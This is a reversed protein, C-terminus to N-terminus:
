FFSDFYPMYKKGGVAYALPTKLGSYSQHSRTCSCCWTGSFTGSPESAWHTEPPNRHLHNILNRLTATCITFLTGSPEPGSLHYPEPDSPQYPEPPEPESLLCPEPPNRPLFTILNWPKGAYIASSTGSREPASPSHPESPRPASLLCHEPPNRLLFIILNRICRTCIASSTGSFEPTSQSFVKRSRRLQQPYCMLKNKNKGDNSRVVFIMIRKACFCSSLVVVGMEFALECLGPGLWLLRRCLPSLRRPPPPRRHCRRPPWAIGAAPTAHRTSGRTNSSFLFNDNLHKM